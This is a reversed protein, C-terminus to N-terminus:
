MYKNLFALTKEWADSTEEPAYNGGSPNAFAHEVGEYIYVENTVGASDLAADFERATEVSVAQDETGFVGLM